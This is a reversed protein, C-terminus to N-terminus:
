LQPKTIISLTFTSTFVQDGSLLQKLDPELACVHLTQRYKEADYPSGFLVNDRLTMNQIWAQQPVYALGGHVTVSGKVRSIQEMIAALLSSKGSGVPGVVAVLSGRPIKLNINRLTPTEDWSFEGDVIEKKIL